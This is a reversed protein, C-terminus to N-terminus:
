TRAESTADDHPTAVKAEDCWRTLLEDSAVYWGPPLPYLRRREASSTFLLWGEALEPRPLLQRRRETLEEQVARVEWERDFDDRFSRVLPHAM